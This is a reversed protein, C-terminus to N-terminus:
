FFYRALCFVTSTGRVGTGGFGNLATLRGVSYIFGKGVGNRGKEEKM